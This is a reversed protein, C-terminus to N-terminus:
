ACAIERKKGCIYIQGLAIGGDNSPVRRHTYVRFGKLALNIELNSLVYRNQFVGGSLVVKGVGSERRIRGAADEVAAIVTNHFKTSIVPVPVGQLTDSVIQRIMPGFRVVPGEECDYWGSCTRDALSELRMPAEGHFSSIFCVGTIAAVADFLRGASSCLPSNVRNKMATTLLGAASDPIRRVFELDLNLAEDGFVHHLYALGMRYPEKAARDGGPMPVYEFHGVREFSLPDCLFFEAGWINGDTGLGTGDFAVGIVKEDLGHEAMCAAIHAHHHQVRTVPLSLSEAYRTSLYDPHLDCAIERPTVRMLNKFRDLTGTFFDLTEHNRLDGIHQSMYADSNKGICFSHNLEAGTAVIGDVDFPLRVPVPVYGRSRRIQRVQNNVVMQVSDDVRNHIDRNHTLVADTEMRFVRLAEANGTVIPCGSENGSTLVIAPTQLKGFLLHHLPLYPLMVGLTDLGLNIGGALPRKMKALLIPRQPSMLAQEESLNLDAYERLHLIDSFMVAFPKGERKKVKRLRAVAKANLADCALHYGGLGKVAVTGGGAIITALRDLIQGIKGEVGNDHFLTFCPGCESCAVPQAHFRRDLVDGYEAACTQCMRFSGMTTNERDYPLDKIITFRPGCNTCNVFPYGIRHEQREMDMLCDPCVAIDPSIGTIDTSVDVSPVIRFDPFNHSPEAIRETQLFHIEAGMPKEAVIKELFEDKLMEGCRYRIIVGDNRNEVTGKVDLGSAVRYIFPRFGVGQVLGKIRTKFMLTNEVLNMM